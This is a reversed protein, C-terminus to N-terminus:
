KAILENEMVSLINQVLEGEVPGIIYAFCVSDLTGSTTSQSNITSFSIMPSFTSIGKTVSCSNLDERIFNLILDIATCVYLVVVKGKWLKNDIRM